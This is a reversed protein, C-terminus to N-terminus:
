DVEGMLALYIIPHYSPLVVDISIHSKGVLAVGKVIERVWPNHHVCVQTLKQYYPCRYLGVRLNTM